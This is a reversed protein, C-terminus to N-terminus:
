PVVSIEAHDDQDAHPVARERAAHLDPHHRGACDVLDVPHAGEGRLAGLDIGEARTLDAEDGGADLVDGLGLDAVRDGLFATGGIRREGAEPRAHRHHEAAQERDVRRIVLIQALAEGPQPEVIRAEM